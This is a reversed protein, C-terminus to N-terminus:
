YKRSGPLPATIRADTSCACRSSSASTSYASDTTYRSSYAAPRAM